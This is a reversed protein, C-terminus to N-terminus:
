IAKENIKEKAVLGSVAAERIEDLIPLTLVPMVDASADPADAASCTVGDEAVTVFLKEQAVDYYFTGEALTVGDEAMAGVTFPIASNAEKSAFAIEEGTFFWDGDYLRTGETVDWTNAANSDYCFSVSAIDRRALRIYVGYRETDAAAGNEATWISTENLRTKLIIEDIEGKFPITVDFSGTEFIGFLTSFRFGVYLKVDREEAYYGCFGEPFSGPFFGRIEAANEKVEVVEVGAGQYARFGLLKWGYRGALFILALIGVAILLGIVAKKLFKM